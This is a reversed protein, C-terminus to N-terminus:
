GNGVLRFWDRLSLNLRLVEDEALMSCHAIPNRLSNLNSLVKEVARVSSFVSGFISWNVKIIEGLQGFTTYDILEARLTVAADREKKVNKEVDAKIIDPIVAPVEWWDKGYEAELLDSIMLRISKELCYFLQYHKAMENAESRLKSDFQLYTNNKEEYDNLEPILGELAYRKEIEKLELLLMQNNMIFSRVIREVSNYVSM